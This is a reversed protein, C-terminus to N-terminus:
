RSRYNGFGGSSTQWNSSGRFSRAYNTSVANRGFSNSPVNSRSFNRAPEGGQRMYPSPSPSMTSPRTTSSRMMREPAYSRREGNRSPMNYQRGPASPSTYRRESGVTGGGQHVRSTRMNSMSRSYIAQASRRADPSRFGSSTGANATTVGRTVSKLGTMANGQRMDTLTRFRDGNETRLTTMPRIAGTNTRVVPDVIAVRGTVPDIVHNSVVARHFHDVHHFDNIVVVTTFNHCIYFGPYWFGFWFTPYPVWDYLYSYYYPPPYYTVIPPGADYYYQDVDNPNQQYSPPQTGQPAKTDAPAPTPLNMQAAITNLSKTAEGSSMPLTGQASAATISDQIQGIIVPTMPYDSIWGNQPAIGAKALMDEAATEDSPNGLRLEAALKVAFDGERVLTQAVPPAQTQPTQSGYDASFAAFPYLLLGAAMIISLWKKM